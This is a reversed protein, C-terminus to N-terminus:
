KTAIKLHPLLILSEALGPFPYRYMSLYSSVISYMYGSSIRVPICHQPDADIKIRIWIRLVAPISIVNWKLRLNKM